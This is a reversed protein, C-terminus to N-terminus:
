VVQHTMATAFHAICRRGGQGLDAVFPRHPEEDGPKV